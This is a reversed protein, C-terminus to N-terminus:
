CFDKKIIEKIDISKYATKDCKHLLNYEEKVSRCGGCLLFFLIIGIAPAATSKMFDDDDM